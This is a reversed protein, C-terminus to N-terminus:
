GAPGIRHGPVGHGQGARRRRWHASLRRYRSNGPARL